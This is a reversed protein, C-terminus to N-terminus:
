KKGKELINKCVTYLGFSVGLDRASGCSEYRHVVADLADELEQIRLSDKEARESLMDMRDQLKAWEYESVEIM